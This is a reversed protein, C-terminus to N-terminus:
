KTSPDSIGVCSHPLCSALRRVDIVFISMMAQAQVFRGKPSSHKPNKHAGTLGGSRSLILCLARSPRSFFIRRVVLKNRNFKM